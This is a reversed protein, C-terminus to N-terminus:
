SLKLTILFNDLNKNEVDYPEELSVKPFYAVKSDKSIPCIMYIQENSANTIAERHYSLTSEGIEEIPFEFTHLTTGDITEQNADKSSYDTIVDIYFIQNNNRTIINFYHNQDLTNLDLKFSDLKEFHHDSTNSHYVSVEINNSNLNSCKFGLENNYPITKNCATLLLCLSCLLLFKKLIKTKM